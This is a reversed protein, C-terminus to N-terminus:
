LANHPGCYRKYVPLIQKVLRRNTLVNFKKWIAGFASYESDILSSSYGKEWLVKVMPSSYFMHLIYILRLVMILVLSLRYDSVM